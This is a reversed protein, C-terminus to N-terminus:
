ESIKEIFERLLDARDGTAVIVVAHKNKGSAYKVFGDLNVVLIREEADAQKTLERIDSQGTSGRKEMGM